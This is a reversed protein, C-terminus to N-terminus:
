WGNHKNKILFQVDEPNAINIFKVALSVRYNPNLIDWYFNIIEEINGILPLLYPKENFSPLPDREGSYTHICYGGGAAIDKLEFLDFEKKDSSSSKSIITLFNKLLNNECIVTLGGIRPTFNPADPEYSYKSAFNVMPNKTLLTETHSGNSVAFLNVTEPMVYTEELMANYIVLSPDGANKKDFFDTKISCGLPQGSKLIRNQSNPSRGTIFYLQVVHKYDESIGLIIGRGPYPNYKLKDVNDKATQKYFALAAQATQFGIDSKM